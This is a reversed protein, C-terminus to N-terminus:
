TLVELDKAEKQFADLEAQSMGLRRLMVVERLPRGDAESQDPYFLALIKDVGTSPGASNHSLLATELYADRYSSADRGASASLRIVAERLAEVEVLLDSVMSILTINREDVTSMVLSAVTPRPM